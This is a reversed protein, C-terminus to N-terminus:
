EFRSLRLSWALPSGVFDTRKLIRVTNELDRASHMIRDTSDKEGGRNQSKQDGNSNAKIGNDLEPVDFTKTPGCHRRGGTRSVFIDDLLEGVVLALSSFVSTGNDRDSLQPEPSEFNL